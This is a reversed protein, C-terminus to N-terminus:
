GPKREGLTSLAQNAAGKVQLIKSKACVRLAAKVAASKDGIAGLAEAAHVQIRWHNEEDGVPPEALMSVLLPVAAKTKLEGFVVAGFEWISSGDDDGAMALLTKEVHAELAPDKGYQVLTNTAARQVNLVTSTLGHEILPAIADAHPCGALAMAAATAKRWNDGALTPALVAVVAAREADTKLKLKRLAATAARRVAVSDDSVGRAIDPAAKTIGAAGLFKVAAARLRRRAKNEPSVKKKGDEEEGGPDDVDASEKLLTLALEVTAATHAGAPTGGIMELAGAKVNPPATAKLTGILLPILVDKPLRGLTKRAARAVNLTDDGLSAVIVPLHGKIHPMGTEGLLTIAIERVHWARDAKNEPDDKTAAAKALLPLLEDRSNALAARLAAVSADVVNRASDAQAAVLAECVDAPLKHGKGALAALANACRERTPWDDAEKSESLTKGLAAIDDAGAIRAVYKAAVARAAPSGNNLKERMLAALEKAPLARTLADAAAIATEADGNDLAWKLPPVCAKTRIKGLADACSVRIVMANPGRLNAQLRNALAQVVGDLGDAPRNPNKADFLEGLAMASAVNKHGAACTLDELLKAIQEKGPANAGLTAPAQLAIAIAVVAALSWRTKALIPM